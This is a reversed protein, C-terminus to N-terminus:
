SRSPGRASRALGPKMSISADDLAIFRMASGALDDSGHEVQGAVGRRVDRAVVDRDRPIRLYPGLAGDDTVAAIARLVSSLHIPPRDDPKFITIYTAPTRPSSDHTSGAAAAYGDGAKMDQGQNTVTGDILHFEAAKQTHPTGRYGPQAEVLVVTYGDATGLIKAPRM